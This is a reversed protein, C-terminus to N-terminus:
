FETSIQELDFPELSDAFVEDEGLDDEDYQRRQLHEDSSASVVKAGKMHLTHECQNIMHDFSVFSRPSAYTYDEVLVHCVQQTEYEQQQEKLHFDTLNNNNMLHKQNNIQQLEIDTSDYDENNVDLDDLNPTLMHSYDELLKNAVSSCTKFVPLPLEKAYQHSTYSTVSRDEEISSPNADKMTPSQKETSINTQNKAGEISKEQEIEKPLIQLSIPQQSVFKASSHPRPVDYDPDSYTRKRMPILKIWEDSIDTHYVLSSTANTNLIPANTVKCLEELLSNLDDSYRFDIGKDVDRFNGSRSITHDNRLTVLEDTSRSQNTDYIDRMFNQEEKSYQLHERSSKERDLDDLIEDITKLKQAQDM